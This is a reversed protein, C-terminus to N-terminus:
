KKFYNENIYAKLEVLDSSKVRAKREIFILVGLENARKQVTRHDLKLERGIDHVTPYNDKIRRDFEYIANKIKIILTDVM